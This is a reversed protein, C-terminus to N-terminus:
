VYEVKLYGFDAKKDGRALLEAVDFTGESGNSAVVVLKYDAATGEFIQIEGNEDASETWKKGAYEMKVNGKVLPQDHEDSARLKFKPVAPQKKFYNRLAKQGETTPLFNEVQWGLYMEWTKMKFYMDDWIGNHTADTFAAPDFMRHALSSELNSKAYGPKSLFDNLPLLEWDIRFNKGLAKELYKVWAKANAIGWDFQIQFVKGWQVQTLNTRYKSYANTSVPLAYAWLPSIHGVFATTGASEPACSECFPNFTAMGSENSRHYGTFTPYESMVKSDDIFDHLDTCEFKLLPFNLNDRWALVLDEQENLRKGNYRPPNTGEPAFMAWLVYDHLAYDGMDRFIVRGNPVGNVMELLYNQSNGGFSQLGYDLLIKAKARGLAEAYHKKWFDKWEPNPDDIQPFASESKVIQGSISFDASSNQDVEGNTIRVFPISLPPFYQRDHKMGRLSRIQYGDGFKPQQLKKRNKGLPFMWEDWKRDSETVTAIETLILIQPDAFSNYGFHREATRIYASRLAALVSNHELNAKKEQAEIGIINVGTKVSMVTQHFNAGEANMSFETGGNDAPQRFRFPDPTGYEVWLEDNILKRDAKDKFTIKQPLRVRAVSSRSATNWVDLMPNFPMLELKMSGTGLATGIAKSQPTNDRANYPLYAYSAYIKNLNRNAVAYQPTDVALKRPGDWPPKGLKRLEQLDSINPFFVDRLATLTTNDLGDAETALIVLLRNLPARYLNLKFRQNTKYFMSWNFRTEYTLWNRNTNTFTIPVATVVVAVATIPVQVAREFVLTQKTRFNLNVPTFEGAVGSITYSFKLSELNNVTMNPITLVGDPGTNNVGQARITEGPGFPPVILKWNVSTNPVERGNLGSDNFKIKLTIIAM